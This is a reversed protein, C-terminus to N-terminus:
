KEKPILSALDKTLSYIKYPHENGGYGPDIGAVIWDGGSCSEMKQNCEDSPDLWLRGTKTTKSAETLRSTLRAMEPQPYITNPWWSGAVKAVERIWKQSELPLADFVQVFCCKCWWGQDAYKGIGDSSRRYVSSYSRPVCYSDFGGKCAQQCGAQCRPCYDLTTIKPCRFVYSPM